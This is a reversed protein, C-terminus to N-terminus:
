GIQEAVRVALQMDREAYVQTIDAQAHGCIVQAAELGFRKRIETAATHRLQNPTWVAVKAKTCGRRIAVRYSAVEYRNAPLRKTGATEQMKIKALVYGNKRRLAQQRLRARRVSEAASFCYAEPDRNLYPALLAQARPGVVVLRDREHHETKHSDPRYLWVEGSRDLDCPRLACVEGPRAGTLRQFRVMDAVIEPLVPLTKEVTEDDIPAVGPTERARTRGRKLGGLAALQLHTAPSCLEKKVAWKFMGVLRVVQKNLNKRAWDREDILWERFQDLDVPGFDEVSRKGHQAGLLGTVEEILEAERTVKGNKIYYRRAHRRYVFILEDLTVVGGARRKERLNPPNITAALCEEADAVAVKPAAEAQQALWKEVFERYREHSKISGYRGLYVERGSVYVCAQGSAKHRGYKPPLKQQRSM